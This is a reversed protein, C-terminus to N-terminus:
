DVTYVVPTGSGYSSEVKLSSNFRLLYYKYEGASIMNYIFSMDGNSLTTDGIQIGDIILRFTYVNSSATSRIYILYGSGVVNVVTTDIDSGSSSYFYPTAYQATHNFEVADYSGSIGFIDVGKKINAAVLDTDGVVYGSGNHYGASITQNVTSPTVIVAGRNSMTGTIDGSDVFATKGSLLDAATANGSGGEGQLIFNGSTSNYKLSYTGNLRLKGSTLANGKSDVISKAGLGNVNITSAGTNAVNIKIVVGMGDLYSTPVPALTLTYTNASGGTVAYGPQRIYDSLHSTLDSQVAEVTDKRAIDDSASPAAVKARGSADRAMLVSATAASTAADLKAKDEKSMRGDVTSSAKKIVEADLIDTNANFDGIDVVDTGEPKKLGLNATLKMM